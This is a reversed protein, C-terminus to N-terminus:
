EQQTMGGKRRVGLLKDQTRNVIKKGNVVVKIKLREIYVGSGVLRGKNSRMNWALFIRGKNKLCGDEGYVNKDSCKITNSTGGVYEGFQSYYYTQYFLEVADDAVISREGSRYEGVNLENVDGRKIADILDQSVGLELLESDYAGSRIANFVDTQTTSSIERISVNVQRSAEVNAEAMSAIVNQEEVPVVSLYNEETISGDIVGNVFQESLGYSTDIVYTRIDSFLQAVAEEESISTVVTDFVTTSGIKSEIFGDLANVDKKTQEVMIKSIDFDVLSGQVGLSDGIQQANQLNNTILKAQTVTDNKIIDYPDDGLTVVGPSEMNLEQAGTIPVWPNDKHPKNGVLDETAVNPAFRILDGNTPLIADKTVSGYVLIMMNGTGSQFVPMEPVQNSGSRKCIFEFMNAFNQRSENSIAESFTLTITRSGNDLAGKVASLIVPGVGDHVQENEMYFQSSVGNDEHTFWNNLVGFYVTSGDGTFQRSGFGCVEGSCNEENVNEAVLVVDTENVLKFRSTTEFSEGFTFQMSDLRSNQKLSRDFQVYLSDVRGDGNRDLAVANAVRPVPPAVFNLNKWVSVGAAAGKATLTAGAVPVNARVFFTARGNEDLNVYSIKNGNLSDLVDINADSFSLNIKRNYNNVKAWEEFFTINVQYSTYAWEGIQVSDGSVEKGLVTWDLKAFAVSPVAYSPVTIEVKTAQSPDAKLTIELFYHGPALAASSVIAVSDISFTSDSTIKIGEYHTGVGLVEPGPLNGGMLKFIAAGGVTDQETSKADFGCSLKNKKNIQWVEYNLAGDRMDSTVFLSADVHLDISTRMRFNSSGTHREVYFIHFDYTKGPILTNGTNQGITDLDVAGAVQAHQGGIDVALRNDIFVWVDDDGYFDFYQGPVYEFTAQIKAAYGFNHKGIKTGKLEDYYPNLVTEAEDLYKFDDILFMGDSNKENGESIRDKSVEALWFGEDDMSVYLDRCTMNTYENGADDKAVVEPLFWSDLHETIKCNEPFPDARVPVGNPGLEYEVMGTVANNKGSCGGSGFDASVGNAPDGNKGSGNGDGKTGHLWDYVTVPIKKLPCEGLVGPYSSFQAPVDTKYGQVWITDSLAAVSDLSIEAAITPETLVLGENGVYHFGVTQKFYVNFGTTPANVTAKFWGCYNELATMTAVSDGDMYLVANTNSWPTFFVVTKEVSEAAFAAMGALLGWASVRRLWNRMWVM